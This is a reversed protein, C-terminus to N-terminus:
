TIQPARSGYRMLGTLMSRYRNGRGKRLLSAWSGGLGGGGVGGGSAGM